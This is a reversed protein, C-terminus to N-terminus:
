IHLSHFIAKIDLNLWIPSYLNVCGVAMNKKVLLSFMLKTHFVITCSLKFFVVRYIINLPYKVTM